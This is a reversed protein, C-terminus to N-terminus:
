KEPNMQRYMQTMIALYSELPDLGVGKRRKDVTKPNKLKKPVATRDKYEVQTGYIQSKGLNINVRDTLYAYNKPDSKKNKLEKKMLKLVDEQFKLDHDCHQVCLWYNNSSEKGVKDFNPYGYTKLIKKLIITHRVFTEEEIKILAQRNESNGNMIDQQVQQDVIKLSDIQKKLLPYKITEQANALVSFTLFLSIIWFIKKMQKDKFTTQSIVAL